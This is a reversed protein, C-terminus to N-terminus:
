PELQTSTPLNSPTLPSSCMELAVNSIAFLNSSTKLKGRAGLARKQGLIAMLETQCMDLTGIALSCFELM